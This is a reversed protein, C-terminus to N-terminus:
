ELKSRALLVTSPLYSRATIETRFDKSVRIPAVCWQHYLQHLNTCDLISAELWNTVESKEQNAILHPYSVDMIPDTPPFSSVSLNCIM